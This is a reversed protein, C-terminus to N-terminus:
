LWEASLTLFRTERSTRGAHAGTKVDNRGVGNAIQLEQRWRTGTLEDVTILPSNIRRSAVERSLPLFLPLSLSFSLISTLYINNFESKMPEVRLKVDENGDLEYSIRFSNLLKELKLSLGVIQQHRYAMQAAYRYRKAETFFLLTLFIRSEIPNRRAIVRYM